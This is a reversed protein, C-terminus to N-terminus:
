IAGSGGGREVEVQGREVATNEAGMRREFRRVECPPTSSCLGPMSADAPMSAHQCAPTLWKCGSDDFIQGRRGTVERYSKDRWEYQDGVVRDVMVSSVTITRLISRDGAKGNDVHIM